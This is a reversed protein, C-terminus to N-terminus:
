VANNERKNLFKNLYVLPLFAFLMITYLFINSYNQLIDFFKIKIFFIPSFPVLLFIFFHIRKLFKNYVNMQLCANLIFSIVIGLVFYHYYIQNTILNLFSISIVNYSLFNLSEYKFGSVFWILSYFTIMTAVLAFLFAQNHIWFWDDLVLFLFNNILIPLILFNIIQYYWKSNVTLNNWVKNAELTSSNSLFVFICTILILIQTFNSYVNKYLEVSFKNSLLVLLLFGLSGLVQVLYFQNTTKCGRKMTLFSQLYNIVIIGLLYFILNTEVVIIQLIIYTILFLFENKLSMKKRNFILNLAIYIPIFLNYNIIKYVDTSILYQYFFLPLYTIVFRVWNSKSKECLVFFYISLLPYFILNM